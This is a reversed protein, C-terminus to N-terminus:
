PVTLSEGLELFLARAGNVYLPFRTRMADLGIVVRHVPRVNPDLLYAKVVAFPVPRSAPPNDPVLFHIGVEAFRQSIPPGSGSLLRYPRVGLDAHIALLRSRHVTYPIIVYPAGTDVFAGAFATSVGPPVSPEFEGDVVLRPITLPSHGPVPEERLVLPIV